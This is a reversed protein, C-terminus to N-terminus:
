FFLEAPKSFTISIIDKQLNAPVQDTPLEYLMSSKIRMGEEKDWLLEVQFFEEFHKQEAEMSFGNGIFPGVTFGNNLFHLQIRNVSSLEPIYDEVNESTIEATEYTEKDADGKIIVM